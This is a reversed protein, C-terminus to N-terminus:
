QKRGGTGFFATSVIDPNYGAAAIKEKTFGMRRIGNIIAQDCDEESLGLSHHELASLNAKTLQNKILTLEYQKDEDTVTYTKPPRLTQCKEQELKNDEVAEREREKQSYHTFTAYWGILMGGVLCFLVLWTINSALDMVLQENM